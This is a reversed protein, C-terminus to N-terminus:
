EGVPFLECLIALHDYRSWGTVILGKFFFIQISNAGHKLVQIFKFDKYVRTM